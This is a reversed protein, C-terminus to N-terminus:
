RYTPKIVKALRQRDRFRHPPVLQTSWDFTSLSVLGSWPRSAGSFWPRFGFWFRLAYSFQPRLRGLACSFCSFVFPSISYKIKPFQKNKIFYLIHHPPTPGHGGKALCTHWLFFLKAGRQTFALPWDRQFGWYAVPRDYVRTTGPCWDSITTHSTDDNERTTAVM